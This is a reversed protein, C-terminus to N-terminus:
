REGGSNIADEDRKLSSPYAAVGDGKSQISFHGDWRGESLHSLHGGGESLISIHSHKKSKLSTPYTAIGAGKSLVFLHGDREM